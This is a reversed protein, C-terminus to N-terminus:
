RGGETAAPALGAETIRAEMYTFTAVLTDVVSRADAESVHEDLTLMREVKGSATREIRGRVHADTPERLFEPM